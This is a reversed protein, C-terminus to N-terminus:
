PTQHPATPYLPLLSPAYESDHLMRVARNVPARRPTRPHQPHQLETDSHSSVCQFLARRKHACYVGLCTLCCILFIFVIIGSVLILHHHLLPPLTPCDVLPLIPSGHATPIYVPVPIRAFKNMLYFLTLSLLVNWLIIAYQPLLQHYNALLHIWPTSPPPIPISTPGSFFTTNIIASLNRYKNSSGPFDNVTPISFHDEASSATWVPPIVLHTTLNQPGDICPLSSGVVIKIGDHIICSCPLQILWTGLTHPTPVTSNVNTCIVTINNTNSTVLYKRVGIQKIITQHDNLPSCILPCKQRLNSLSLGKLLSPLCEDEHTEQIYFKNVNCIGTAHSCIKSKEWFPIYEDNIKLLYEKYQKLRCIQNSQLLYPLSITEFLSYMTNVPIVPINIIVTVLNKRINVRCKAIPLSYYRNMDRMSISLSYNHPILKKQFDILDNKLVDPSILSIPIKDMRCDSLMNEFHNLEIFRSFINVLHHLLLLMKFDGKVLRNIYRSLDQQTEALQNIETNIRHSFHTLNAAQIAEYKQMASISQYLDVQTQDVRGKMEDIIGDYNSSSSFWTSLAIAGFIVSAVIAVQRRGRSLSSSTGNQLANSPLRLNEESSDIETDDVINNVPILFDLSHFPISDSTFVTNDIMTNLRSDLNKITAVLGNIIVCLTDLSTDCYVAYKEYLSDHRSSFLFEVQFSRSIFGEYFVLSSPIGRLVLGPSIIVNQPTVDVFNCIVLVILLSKM